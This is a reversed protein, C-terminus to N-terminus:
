PKEQENTKEKTLTIESSETEKLSISYLGPLRDVILKWLGVALNEVSPPNKMEHLKDASIGTLTKLYKIDQRIPAILPDNDQLIISHDLSDVVSELMEDVQSFEIGVGTDRDVDKATYTITVKLHYTHGHLFSCKNKLGINRHAAYFHYKKTLYFRYPTLSKRKLFEM